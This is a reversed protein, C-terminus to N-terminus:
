YFFDAAISTTPLCRLPIFHAMKTLRDVVTMVTTKDKSKSLEAIFDMSIDSWPRNPTSLPSLLGYPKHRPVKAKCCIDCTKIFNRVHNRLM